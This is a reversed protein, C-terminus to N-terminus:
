IDMLHVTRTDKRLDITLKLPTIVEIIGTSFALLLKSILFTYTYFIYINPIIYLDASVDEM